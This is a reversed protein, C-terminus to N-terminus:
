FTLLIEYSKALFYRKPNSLIIKNEEKTITQFESLPILNSDKSIYFEGKKEVMKFGEEKFTSQNVQFQLSFETEKRVLEEFIRKLKIFKWDTNQIRKLFSSSETKTSSWRMDMVISQDLSRTSLLISM